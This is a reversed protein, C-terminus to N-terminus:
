AAIIKPSSPAEAPPTTVVRCPAAKALHTAVRGALKGVVVMDFRERELISLIVTSPEAGFELRGCVRTAHTSEAASLREQMALAHELAADSCPSFDIPVLIRKTM